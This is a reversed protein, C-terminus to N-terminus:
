NCGVGDVWDVVVVCGSLFVFVGRGVRLEGVGRVMVSGGRGGM